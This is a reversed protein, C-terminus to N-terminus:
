AQAIGAQYLNGLWVPPCAEESSRLHQRALADLLPPLVAAAQPGRPDVLTLREVDLVDSPTASFVLEVDQRSASNVIEAACLLDGITVEIGLEERLERRLADLVGEGKGVWGGPLTTFERGARSSRHVVLRDEVWIAARVKVRASM